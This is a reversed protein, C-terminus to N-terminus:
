ALRVVCRLGPTPALSSFRSRGHRSRHATARWAVRRALPQRSGAAGFHELVFTHRADGCLTRAKLRCKRMDRWAIHQYYPLEVTEAARQRVQDLGHALESRAPGTKGRQRFTDVRRYGSSLENEVYHARERLEFARQNDFADRGANGGRFPAALMQAPRALMNEELEELKNGFLEELVSDQRFREIKGVSEQNRQGILRSAAVQLAGDIM